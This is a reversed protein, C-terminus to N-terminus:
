LNSLKNKLEKIYREKIKIEEELLICMNEFTETPMEILDVKDKKLKEYLDFFERKTLESKGPFNNMKDNEKTM